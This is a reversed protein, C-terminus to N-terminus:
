LNRNILWKHLLENFKDPHEMMPAHGCEDIWFLNADPLLKQFDVAVEPPTVTDNKGWIVCAPTNLNPLDKAM